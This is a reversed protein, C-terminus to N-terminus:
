PMHVTSLEEAFDYVRQATIGNENFLGVLTDAYNESTQKLKMTIYFWGNLPIIGTLVSSSIVASEIAIDKMYPEIAGWKVQGVYSVAASENHDRMESLYGKNAKRREEITPMDDLAKADMARGYLKHRIHDPSSQLIISGRICTLQKDVDMKEYRDDFYLNLIMSEHHYNNEGGCLDRFSHPIGCLLTKGACEPYLKRYMEKIFYSIVAVPSGDRMRAFSMMDSVSARVLYNYKEKSAAYRLDPVFVEPSKDPLVPESASELELNEYPDDTEGPLFDQGPIRIDDASLETDLVKNLYLYIVTKVWETLGKGDSMNHYMDCVLYNDKYGVAMFHGNAEDTGFAIGHTGEYVPVPLDNHEIRYDEGTRTVKLCFYPYRLAAEQVAKNLLEGNIEETLHVRFRMVHHFDDFIFYLFENRTIPYKM